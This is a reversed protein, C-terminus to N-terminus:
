SQTQLGPQEGYGDNLPVAPAIPSEPPDLREVQEDDLLIAAAVVEDMSSVFVYEMDDRVNQPVKVLDRQNDAPAILRRIGTRHAALSKDKLGGIPLVRGRLTIEGTMATDSRVPRGTLASIVATAMTIGASPGDKPMAGEPLHIHLDLREQFDKPIRLQEARSRAYSLAARASEQMVDGAQGTITLTGKGPMTAVEVPIIEGGVDTTGLGIAVGIQNDGLPQDFGFRKPGLYRELRAADLEFPIGPLDPGAPAPSGDARRLDSVSTLSEADALEPSPVADLVVEDREPFVEDIVEDRGDALQRLSRERVIERTVKRCLTALERELGRVGSERTYDRVLRTWLPSSITMAHDPLGHAALQRPLLHQGGIEVKEAETYGSVEIIEMRDRLPRPIQSGVNATAIFLVKSLDFPADLYHDTFAHNQEPDLVELMAATPDGRFDSAMKDIEDLLIVPNLVQATKMAGIIRGAMAGVYTRRHGRVEAEDRVGGLSVRVFTRGMATAISRGLSTKGVGPPGLLCLIQAGTAVGADRTMVRVALYDLIREKVQELGYHDDDLIREAEILDIRDASEETWPLALVTDIYGRVVTSEASVPPMRELRGIERLVKEAVAAPLKREVVQARLADLENGSEGGLEDHIAKLQERLYYERQNKDIQERVRSKIKQELAAVDLESDLHIAIRELRALGDTMELLEQRRAVDTLLQTALLDALHGPESARQVMELVDASLRGRAEAFRGALEQVHSILLRSEDPNSDTEPLQDAGVTFFTRSADFQDIHVRGIGELVVQINGGHQREVSVIGALTGVRHLEDPGPADIESDRHATVVIRRERLMADEVAQISRPRGILLTVVNRPFIVVNKLPLLPYRPGYVELRHM